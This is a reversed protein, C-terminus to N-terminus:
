CSEARGNRVDHWACACASGHRPQHPTVAQKHVVHLNVHPSSNVPVPSHVRVLDRWLVLRLPLVCVGRGCTKIMSHDVGELHAQSWSSVLQVM